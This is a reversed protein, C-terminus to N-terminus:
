KEYTERRLRFDAGLDIVKVGKKLFLLAQRLSEGSEGRLFVVDLEAARAELDASSVFQLGCGALNPNATDFDEEGKSSPIIKGVNRHSLLLRCLEGGVHGRGGYVGITIKEKPM